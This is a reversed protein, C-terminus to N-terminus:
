GIRAPVWALQIAGALAADTVLPIVGAQALQLAALRVLAPALVPADVLVDEQVFAETVLLHASVQAPGAVLRAALLAAM